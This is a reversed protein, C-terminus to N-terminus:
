NFRIQMFQMLFQGRENLLCQRRTGPPGLLVPLSLGPDVAVGVGVGDAVPVPLPVPLALPARLNCRATLTLALTMTM